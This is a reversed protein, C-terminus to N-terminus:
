PETTPEPITCFTVGVGHEVATEADKEGETLWVWEDTDARALARAGCRKSEHGGGVGLAGLM